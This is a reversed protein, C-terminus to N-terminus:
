MKNKGSTVDQKIKKWVYTSLNLRFSDYEQSCQVLNYQLNIMLCSAIEQIIQQLMIKRKSSHWTVPFALINIRLKGLSVNHFTLRQHHTQMM